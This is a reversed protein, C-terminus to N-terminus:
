IKVGRKLTVVWSTTTQTMDLSRLYNNVYEIINKAGIPNASHVKILPLKQNRSIAQDVLWKAADYGTKEGEMGGVDGLDHDLSIIEIDNFSIKEIVTVFDNYTKIINWDSDLPIRIDDLFIKIM